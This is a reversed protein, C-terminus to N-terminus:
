RSISPLNFNSRLNGFADSVGEYQMRFQESDLKGRRNQLALQESQLKLIAANTRLIQNLVHIMMGMSQVTVKAAGAPNVMHAYDKIREAEPDLRDAYKFAENHLNIAEAVSRDTMLQMKGEPTNPIRGYLEEVKSLVLDLNDLDSLVGPRLTQNATRMINLADRLGRNIDRLLNLTDRGNGLINQLQTLQQIATQLIQALYVLDGGWFDARAPRATTLSVVLFPIILLRKWKKM